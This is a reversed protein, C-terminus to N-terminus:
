GAQLTTGLGGEVKALVSTGNGAKVTAVLSWGCVKRWDTGLTSALVSMQSQAAAALMCSPSIIAEASELAVGAAM